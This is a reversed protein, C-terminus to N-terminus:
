FYLQATIEPHVSFDNRIRSEDLQDNYGRGSTRRLYQQYDFKNSSGFGEPTSTVSFGAHFSFSNKLAGVMFSSHIHVPNKEWDLLGFEAAIFIEPQIFHQIMVASNLQWPTKDNSPRRLSFPRTQDWYYNLHQNLYLSTEGSILMEYTWITWLNEQEYAYGYKCNSYEVFKETSPDYSEYKELPSRCGAQTSKFYQATIATSSDDTESFRYRTALHFLKYDIAMWPSTGFMFNESIGYSAIQFGLTADGKELTSTTSSINSGFFRSSKEDEHLKQAHEKQLFPNQESFAPSM